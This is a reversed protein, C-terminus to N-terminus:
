FLNNYIKEIIIAVVLFAIFGIGIWSWGKATIPTIKFLNNLLTYIVSLQLLFSLVIAGLLWPNSLITNKYRQRIIQIRIMEVAVLFTFLLTQARVLSRTETLSYFFIALGIITMLIGITIISAWMHLNIVPEDKPRPKREMIKESKPDAGLALAPLGDTVMNIWLLMVPTLVLAQSSGAFLDPFLLSGLLVGIFVVLVEGMNASLLYNVFKRINDFIGRGEAIADRITTFNDDQLVMDSAEKSVDTGRIGMAIGVDANRLAPADNVGDGTMAVDHDNSLLAKLIKVKHRPEVRAFIEVDEVIKKLKEESANEIDKGTLSGEPDFKIQKGIANATTINDGTAMVVRIGANRCDEIANKVEDRPPDLMGQLGLFVMNNEIQDEDKEADEIEKYAFGIVRLADEAFEENTRLIEEKKEETLKRKEDDIHILDCKELITEPAGKMYATREDTEVDQTIVTMRKRESSFPIERLREFSSLSDIGAKKASVLLAIETPDGYYKEKESEPAEESNNCLFGCKLIPEIDTPYIKKDDKKFEGEPKLGAGSVDIIDDSFYIKKVTMQSETLTGTKDTVITDVSGLSEVVPLRRVIANKDVMKQSGLALTLTVVAPLGEPIAAVALTVATLLLITPNTDTFIFQVFAVMLILGIVGYGISRGLNDIEEQFPTEEKKAEQIQTAISGIETDMGTGTVVAKANGKVASTNMFVMNEREALSTDTDQPDTTKRVNSSEGTLTAENTELNTVEILRADASISDGQEIVIIDGPVIKKSDLKIKEGDRLVTANPTSLERLKQMSKEARYDQIFGFIGNAVLILLILGADIYHPDQGPLIGVGVSILAAFILLYILADQFQSIFIELPSIDKEKIIQNRGYKEMREGAKNSSLGNENTDLADFVEQIDKSHPNEIISSVSNQDSSTM